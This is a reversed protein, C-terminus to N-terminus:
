CNMSYNCGICIEWGLILSIFRIIWCVVKREKWYDDKEKKERKEKRKTKKTQKKKKTSKKRSIKGLDLAFLLDPYWM